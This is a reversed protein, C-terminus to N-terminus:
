IAIWGPRLSGNSSERPFLGDRRIFGDQELQRFVPGSQREDKFSIGAAKALDILLGPPWPECRLARRTRFQKVCFSYFDM